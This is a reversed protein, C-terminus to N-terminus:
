TPPYPHAMQMLASRRCGRLVRKVVPVLSLVLVVLQGWLRM